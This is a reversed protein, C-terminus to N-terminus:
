IRRKVYIKFKLIQHDEFELRGESVRVYESKIEINSMETQNNYDMTNYLISQINIM